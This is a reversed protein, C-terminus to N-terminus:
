VVCSHLLLARSVYVCEFFRAPLSFLTPAFIRRGIVDDSLEKAEKSDNECCFYQEGERKREKQRKKEKNIEDRTQNKEAYSEDALGCEHWSFQLHEVVCLM